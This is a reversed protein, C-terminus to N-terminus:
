RDAGKKERLREALLDFREAWEARQRALWETAEDLGEERVSCRRWQADVTRDILGARELVALHQSVAPRSMAYPAAIEGVTMPGAGLRRVIDRRTRDALAAFVLDLADDDAPM